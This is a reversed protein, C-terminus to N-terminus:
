EMIRAPLPASVTATSLLHDNGRPTGRRLIVGGEKRTLPKAGM